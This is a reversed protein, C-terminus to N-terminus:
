LNVSDIQYSWDLKNDILVGLYKAHDVEKLIEGNIRVIDGDNLETTNSTNDIDTTQKTAKPIHQNTFILLQSKKVNM